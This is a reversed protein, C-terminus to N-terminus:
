EYSYEDKKYKIQNGLRDMNAKYQPYKKEIWETAMEATMKFEKVLGASRKKDDLKANKELFKIIMNDLPSKM